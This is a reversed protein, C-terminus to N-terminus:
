PALLTNGSGPRSPGVLLRAPVISSPLAPQAQGLAPSSSTVRYVGPLLVASLQRNGGPAIVASRAAISRGPRVLSLVIARRAQSAILLRVPGAGIATPSVSVSRAGVYVSLDVPLPPSPRAPQRATGCGSMALAGAVLPVALAAGWSV